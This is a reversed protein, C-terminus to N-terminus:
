GRWFLMATTVVLAIFGTGRIWWDPTVVFQQHSLVYRGSWEMLEEAGIVSVFGFAAILILRLNGEWDGLKWYKWAAAGFIAISLLHLWYYRIISPM